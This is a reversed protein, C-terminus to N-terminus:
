GRVIAQEAPTGVARSADGGVVIALTVEGSHNAPVAQESAVYVLSAEATPSTLVLKTKSQLVVASKFSCLVVESVDADLHGAELERRSGDGPGRHTGYPSM